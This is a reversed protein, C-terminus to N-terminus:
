NREKSYYNSGTNRCVSCEYSNEKFIRDKDLLKFCELCFPHLPCKKWIVFTDTKHEQCVPCFDYKETIDLNSFYNM